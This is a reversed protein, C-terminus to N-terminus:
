ARRWPETGGGKGVRGQHKPVVAKRRNGEAAVVALDRQDQVSIPVAGRTVQEELAQHALVGGRVDPDQVPRDPSVTTSTSAGSSTSAMTLRKPSVGSFVDVGLPPMCRHYLAAPSRHRVPRSPRL